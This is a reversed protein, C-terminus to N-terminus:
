IRPSVVELSIKVVFPDMEKGKQEVQRIHMVVIKFLENIVGFNIFLRCQEFSGKVCELFCSCIQKQVGVDKFCLSFPTIAM